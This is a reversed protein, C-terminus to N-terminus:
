RAAAADLVADAAEMGSTVAGEMTVISVDNRVWDGAFFLNKFPTRVGPRFQQVGPECLFLREWPKGNRHFEVKTIGAARIDGFAPVRSFNDITFDVIQSDTWGEFGTEQGGFVLVSGVDDRSAFESWYPKMDVAFNLPSPFGHVPGPFTNVRRATTVTLSVTCVSQLNHLRRFFPSQWMRTDDPNMAVLVPPPVTSVIYDFGDQTRETGLIAPFAPRPGTRAPVVPGTEFADAIRLGTIRDGDYIWDTVVTRPLIQAGLRRVYDGIPNWLVESTGGRAVYIEAGESTSMRRMTELMHYASMQEPYNFYALRLFRFISYHTIHRRLGHEVAWSDFCIDDHRTLDEGSLAVAFAEAMVRGFNVRDEFPLGGYRNFNAAVEARGGRSNTTFIGGHSPEYGHGVGGLSVLAREPDVGARRALDPLNKYFGVVMHWGHEVLLGDSARYSSAKGGLASALDVIRM